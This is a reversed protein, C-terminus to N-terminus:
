CEREEDKSTKSRPPTLRDDCWRCSSLHGIVFCSLLVLYSAILAMLSPALRFRAALM